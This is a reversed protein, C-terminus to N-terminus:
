SDIFIIDSGIAKELDAEDYNDKLGLVDLLYPDQFVNFPL